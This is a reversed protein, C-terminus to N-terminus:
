PRRAPSAVALVRNLAVYSDFGVHILETGM